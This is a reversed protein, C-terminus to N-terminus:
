IEAKLSDNESIYARQKSNEYGTKVPQLASLTMEIDESTM